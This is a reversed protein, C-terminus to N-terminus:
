TFVCFRLADFAIVSHIIPLANNLALWIQFLLTLNDKGRFTCLIVYFLVNGVCQLGLSIWGVSVLCGSRGLDTTAQLVVGCVVLLVTFVAAGLISAAIRGSLSMVGLQHLYVVTVFIANPLLATIGLLVLSDADTLGCVLAIQTWILADRFSLVVLQVKCWSQHYLFKHRNGDRLGVAMYINAVCTLLQYAVAFYALHVTVDYVSVLYSDKTRVYLGTQIGAQETGLGFNLILTVSILILISTVLWSMHHGFMDDNTIPNSAITPNSAFEVARAIVLSRMVAAPVTVAPAGTASLTGNAENSPHERLDHADDNHLHRHHHQEEDADEDDSYKDNDMHTNLMEIAVATNSSSVSLEKRADDTDQRLFSASRETSNENSMSPSLSFTFHM